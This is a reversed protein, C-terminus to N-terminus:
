RSDHLTEDLSTLLRSAFAAREAAPTSLAVIKDYRAFVADTRFYPPRLTEPFNLADLLSYHDLAACDVAKRQSPAAQLAKLCAESETQLGVLGGKTMSSRWHKLALGCAQSLAKASLPAAEAGACLALGLGVTALLLRGRRVPSPRPESM